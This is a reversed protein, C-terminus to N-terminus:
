VGAAGAAGPPGPRGTAGPAGKPGAPGAKVKAKAKKKLVRPKIQRTSTIVYHNAAYAGGTMAFVLALTAIVTAPNLHQKLKM